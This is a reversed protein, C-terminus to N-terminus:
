RLGGKKQIAHEEDPVSIANSDKFVTSAREFSIKHKVKNTKAKIFNWKFNYDM